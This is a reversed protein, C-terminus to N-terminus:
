AAGRAAEDAPRLLRPLLQPDNVRVALRDMKEM